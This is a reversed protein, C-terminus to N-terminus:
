GGQHNWDWFPRFDRRITPQHEGKKFKGDNMKAIFNIAFQQCDMQIHYTVDPLIPSPNSTMDVYIIACGLPERDLMATSFLKIIRKVGPIQLSTGCILLVHGRKVSAADRNAVDGIDEAAPCPENYLLINPRLHGPKKTRKELVMDQDQQQKCGPCGIPDGVELLALYNELMYLAACKECRLTAINGHLLVCKHTKATEFTDFGAKAELGDINQSYLRKLKGSSELVQLLKHFDTLRAQIASKAMSAVYQCHAQRAPGNIQIGSMM